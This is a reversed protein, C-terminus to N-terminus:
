RSDPWASCPDRCRAPRFIGLTPSPLATRAPTSYFWGTAINSSTSMSRCLSPGGDQPSCGYGPPSGRTYVSRMAELFQKRANRRDPDDALMFFDAARFYFGARLAHGQAPAHDALLLFERKWDVFNTIRPAANRMEDLMGPEGVWSFWRNMQFNMSVDPHLQHFGVPFATKNM